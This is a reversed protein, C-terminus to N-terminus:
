RRIRTWATMGGLGFLIILGFMDVAGAGTYGDRHSIVVHTPNEKVKKKFLDLQGQLNELLAQSAQTFGEQRDQRQQGSLAVPSSKTKILSIGPARFLMNRSPIDYITADIMTHTANEEGPIIYAGVLTWYTFAGMNEDTFQSQDYALLVIVDVHYMTRIQDLNNFSGQPYLYASPILEISKIFPLADFERRVKEMLFFKEEETIGDAHHGSAPVFAIGVDLPLTLHPVVAEEIPCEKDPYLYQVVSTKHHVSRPAGFFWSSVSACGSFAWVMAIPILISQFISKMSKM